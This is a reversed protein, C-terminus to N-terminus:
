LPCSLLSGAVGTFADHTQGQGMAQVIGLVLPAGRKEQQLGLGPSSTGGRHRTGQRPALRM